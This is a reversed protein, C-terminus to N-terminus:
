HNNVTSLVEEYIVVPYQKRLGRVYEDERYKQYDEVVKAGVDTWKVPGKKLMKGVIGCYPFGELPKAETGKVRFALIDVNNNTGRVFLRKDMRVTVSDANFQERVTQIWRSDDKVKKLAKKVRKVDAKDACYYIMGSYHPEDWSYDEKHEAFYREIGATDAKAPEWIRTSCLEYLLLGDHYERVLFRLDANEKCLRETEMDLVQDVTYESGYKKMIEALADTALREHVGRREMFRHIQPHLTDFPELQKRELMKVIHYGVPSLFPRCMDGAKLGYAVDEFEKMTDGPGVWPLAGGNRASQADDSFKAALESFDAGQLIANYISDARMLKQERVQETANQPVLVLIHAPRILDKGGLMQVLGDYYDHCQQEVVVEPVLMPRVQLNRYHRFEKQFAAATDLKADMAARVKLRYAAFLEAYDRVSKKDSVADANNKNFNYEFESRTVAEGAVTMVIPDSLQQSIAALPLLSMVVCCAIFIKKMINKRYHIILYNAPYLFGCTLVRYGMGM